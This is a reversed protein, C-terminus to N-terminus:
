PDVPAACGGTTVDPRSTWVLPASGYRVVYKATGAGNTTVETWQLVLSTDTAAVIKLTTVQAPIAAPLNLANPVWAENGPASALGAFARGGGAVVLSLTAVLLMGGRWKACSRVLRLLTPHNLM